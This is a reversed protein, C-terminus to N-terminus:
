LMFSSIAKKIEAEDETELKLKKFMKDILTEKRSNHLYAANLKDEM